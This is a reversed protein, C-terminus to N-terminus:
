LRIGRVQYDMESFGTVTLQGPHEKAQTEACSACSPVGRAAGNFTVLKTALRRCLYPDDWDSGDCPAAEDPWLCPRRGPEGVGWVREDASM